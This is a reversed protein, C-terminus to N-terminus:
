PTPSITASAGGAPAADGAKWYHFAFKVRTSDGTEPHDWYLINTALDAINATNGMLAVLRRFAILIDDDGKTTLLRRLRFESLVATADKDCAHKGIGDAINKTSTDDTRVHALVSALVAVRLLEYPHGKRLAGFLVLTQAEAAAEVWTSCRRLKALAARDGRSYRDDGKESPQLDKWWDRAIVGLRRKEGAEMM